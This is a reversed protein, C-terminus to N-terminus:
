KTKVEGSSGSDSNSGSKNKRKIHFWGPKRPTPDPKRPTPDANRPLPERISPAPKQSTKQRDSSKSSGTTKSVTANIADRHKQVETEELSGKGKRKNITRQAGAISKELEHSKIDGINKPTSEKPDKAKEDEKEEKEDRRHRSSKSKTKLDKHGRDRPKENDSEKGNNARKHSKPMKPGVFSKQIRRINQQINNDLKLYPVKTKKRVKIETAPWTLRENM